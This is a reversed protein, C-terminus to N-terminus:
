RSEVGRVVTALFNDLIEARAARPSDHSTILMAYLGVMFFQATHLADAGAYVEDRERARQVVAVLVTIIPYEAWQDAGPLLAPRRPSFHLGLMERFLTKGVRREMATVLRVVEALAAPLFGPGAPAADGRAELQVLFKSLQAVVRAEESRELEAVVHEKTPFHFYFTGRAVGAAAAIAGVDADALGARKFETLAATYVRKRTQQRQVERGGAQARESRKDGVPPM